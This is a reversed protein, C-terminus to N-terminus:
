QSPISKSLSVTELIEDSFVSRLRWVLDFALEPTTTRPYDNCGVTTVRPSYINFETVPPLQTLRLEPQNDMLVDVTERIEFEDITVELAGSNDFGSDDGFVVAIEQKFRDSYTVNTISYTWFYFFSCNGDGITDSILHNLRYECAPSRVVLSQEDTIREDEAEQDVYVLLRVQTEAGCIVTPGAETSLNIDPKYKLGNHNTESSSGDPFDLYLYYNLDDPLVAVGASDYVEWELKFNFPTVDVAKLNRIAIPAQYVIDAEDDDDSEEFLGCGNVGGAVLAAVSLGSLARGIAAQCRVSRKRQTELRGARINGAYIQTRM